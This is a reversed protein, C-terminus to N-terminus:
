KPRKRKSTAPEPFVGFYSFDVGVEKASHLITKLEDYVAPIHVHVAEVRSMLMSHMENHSAKLLTCFLYRFFEAVAKLTELSNEASWFMPAKPIPLQTHHVGDISFPFLWDTGGDQPMRMTASLGKVKPHVFDNRASILDAIKAVRMNGRDLAPKSKLQLYMEIKSLPSMRDLEESLKRSTGLAVLLCNAVCEVSLASALISARAFRNMMYPETTRTAERNQVIADALLEFFAIYRYEAPITVEDPM